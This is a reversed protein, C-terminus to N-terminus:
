GEILPLSEGENYINQGVVIALSNPLRARRRIWIGFVESRGEVFSMDAKLRFEACGRWFGIVFRL